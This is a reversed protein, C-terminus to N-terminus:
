NFYFRTLDRWVQFCNRIEGLMPFQMLSDVLSCVGGLCSVRGLFRLWFQLASACTDQRQDDLERLCGCVCARIVARMGNVSTNRRTQQKKSYNFNNKDEGCSPVVRSIGSPLECLQHIKAPQNKRPAHDHLRRKPQTTKSSAAAYKHRFITMPKM